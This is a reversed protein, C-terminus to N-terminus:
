DSHLHADAEDSDELSGEDASPTLPEIDEDSTSPHTLIIRPIAMTTKVVQLASSKFSANSSKLGTSSSSRQEVGGRSVGNGNCVVTAEIRKSSLSYDPAAASSPGASSAPQPAEVSSQQQQQHQKVHPRVGAGGGGGGAGGGGGSISGESHTDSTDHQQHRAATGASGPEAMRGVPDDDDDTADPEPPPPQLPRSRLVKMKICSGANKLASVAVHHTVEHMDQGNVELVRDGVHVGAREAPGGKSVKSIFVGEDREKYPLSGRGGAISIGLSGRQGSVRIQLRLPVQSVKEPPPAPKDNDGDGDGESQETAAVTDDVQGAADHSLAASRM